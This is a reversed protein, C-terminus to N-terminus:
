ATVRDAWGALLDLARDVDADSSAIGPSLRIAGVPRAICRSFRGVDFATGRAGELCRRAAEAPFGFAHESAGPNCFCGGRLSIGRASAESELLPWPVTRGDPDLVNLAVTGGRDRLDRPGHIEVLPRGNAHHLGALGDLLRSTLRRVHAGLATIGTREVFALADPVADLALFSPTGDEFGEAGRRLQHMRNQVSVFDVTGGAFWPRRLRALSEHRAVLAGVGTPYGAIKYISLAVFDAPHERLDLRATPVYSAADLLVTWGLRRADSVLRLPHRVGSFNSQAPFALLSGASPARGLAALPEQLRMDAGLPLVRVPAGARAAHERIGNASNHNDASLALAGDAAFPFSEAVLRIANSANATFCADYESPDACVFDLVAARARAVAETSRRSAPSESHPNGFVCSLMRGAHTRVLSEPYLAAGTYDLYCEGTRDLRSFEEARLRAFWRTDEEVAPAATALRAATLM